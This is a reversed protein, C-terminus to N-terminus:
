MLSARLRWSAQSRRKSARRARAPDHCTRARPRLWGLGHSVDEGLNIIRADLLELQGLREVDHREVPLEVALDPRGGEELAPSDHHEPGIVVEPQRGVGPHPLCGPRRYGSPVPTVPLRSSLPVRTM